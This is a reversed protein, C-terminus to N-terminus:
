GEGAAEDLLDDIAKQFNQLPQAGKIYITMNAKDPDDPDTLGLVFGPTGSMGLDRSSKLDANVWPEYKKTDLCDDFQATNLGIDAAYAKLNEDSLERQNDFMINHMEWYKGQNNACLAALSADTAHPHISAIPSERMVYKLKGTEVYETVLTPMVDRYHRSCFPCQYDSYEILTVPADESGKYPSLGISVEQEAFAPAPPPAARAGQELLKKIEELDKQISAQGEQLADVKSQLEEVEDKTSASWAPSSIFLLLVSVAAFRSVNM